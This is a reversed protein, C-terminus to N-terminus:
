QFVPERVDLEPKNLLLPMVDPGLDRTVVVKFKSSMSSLHSAISGLRQAPASASLPSQASSPMAYWCLSSHRRSTYLVTLAPGSLPGLAPTTSLVAVFTSPCDFTAPQKHTTSLRTLHTPVM